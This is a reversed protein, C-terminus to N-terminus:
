PLVEFAKVEKVAAATRRILERNSDLNMMGGVALTVLMAEFAYCCHARYRPLLNKQNVGTVGHENLTQAYLELLGGEHERRTESLLATALFYAVDSVGEGLRVLQWDLFGVKNSQWFLNGAHCDHHVLTRPADNLFAMMKRRQKAYRLAPAHLETPILKGALRLGRKMLPVALASGLADELRRVPGALWAYHSDLQPHEWFKAHLQALQKVVETAQALNLADEPRGAKCSFESVDALVLTSGRGFRSHAALHPPLKLPVHPAIENYFRVETHLLRPLATILKARWALSPIKVFWQRAMTETSNHTVAVRVRTTTGVDVGVIQVNSVQANNQQQNVIGQAWAPTLHSPHHALIHIRKM